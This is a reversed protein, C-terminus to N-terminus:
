GEAHRLLQTNIWFVNHGRVKTHLFHCARVTLRFNALGNVQLEIKRVFSVNTNTVIRYGILLM